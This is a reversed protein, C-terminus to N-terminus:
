LRFLLDSNIGIGDSVSKKSILRVDTATLHEFVGLVRNFRHALNIDVNKVPKLPNSRESRPSPM